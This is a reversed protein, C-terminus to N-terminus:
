LLQLVDILQVLPDLADRLRLLDELTLLVLALRRVLVVGHFCLAFLRSPLWLVGAIPPSLQLALGLTIGLLAAPVQKGGPLHALQIILSRLLLLSCYRIEINSKRSSGMVWSDERDRGRLAAAKSRAQRTMGPPTLLGARAKPATPPWGGNM